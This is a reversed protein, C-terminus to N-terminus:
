RSRIWKRRIKLNYGISELETKLDSYEEPTALKTRNLVYSYNAGGHQGIHMYSMCLGQYNYKHNVFLAIVEDNPFKRFITLTNDKDKEM